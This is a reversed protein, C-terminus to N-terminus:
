PNVPRGTKPDLGKQRAMEEIREENPLSPPVNAELEELWQLKGDWDPLEAPPLPVIKDLDPVKPNLYSYKSLFDEIIKYRRVREPDATQALYYIEDDPLPCPM